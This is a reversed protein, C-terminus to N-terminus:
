MCATSKQNLAVYLVWLNCTKLYLIFTIFTFQSTQCYRMCYYATHGSASVCFIIQQYILRSVFFSIGSYWRVMCCLKSAKNNVLKPNKFIEVPIEPFTFTPLVYSGVFSCAKLTTCFGSIVTLKTKLM